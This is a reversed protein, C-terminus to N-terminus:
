GAQAQKGCIDIKRLQLMANMADRVSSIAASIAILFIATREGIAAVTNCDFAFGPSTAVGLADFLYGRM